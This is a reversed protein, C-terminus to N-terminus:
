NIEHKPENDTTVAVKRRHSAGAESRGVEAETPVHASNPEGGWIIRARAEVIVDTSMKNCSLRSISGGGLPYYPSTVEVNSVM